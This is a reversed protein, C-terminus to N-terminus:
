RITLEFNLDLVVEGPEVAIGRVSFNRVERSYRPDRGTEELIRRAESAVPYRFDRALSSALSSCVLRSYVGTRGAGAAKVSALGIQGNRYEPVAHIVVDFEDGLGVCRNFVDLSTRGTFRAFIRLRGSEASVRPNQLYAFNCRTRREGLYRRGEETFVQDALMREIAGFGLRLEVAPAATALLFLLAARVRTV